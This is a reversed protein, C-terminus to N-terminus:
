QPIYSISSLLYCPEKKIRGELHRAESRKAQRKRERESELCSLVEMGSV